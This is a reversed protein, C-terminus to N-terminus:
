SVAPAMGKSRIVSAAAPATLFRVLAKARQPANARVHVGACFVTIEQVDASLPGVIDIGPVPLLEGFQPVLELYAEKFAASAMVKIETADSM